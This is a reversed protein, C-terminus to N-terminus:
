SKAAASAVGRGRQLTELSGHSGVAPVMGGDRAAGQDSEHPVPAGVQVQAKVKRRRQSRLRTSVAESDRIVKGNAMAHSSAEYTLRGVFIAVEKVLKLQEKTNRLIDVEQRVSEAAEKALM